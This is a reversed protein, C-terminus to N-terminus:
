ALPDITGDAHQFLISLKEPKAGPFLVHEHLPTIGQVYELQAYRIKFHAGSSINHGCAVQPLIRLIVEGEAPVTAVRNESVLAAM